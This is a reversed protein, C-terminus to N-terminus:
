KNYLLDEYISTVYYRSFRSVRIGLGVVCLVLCCFANLLGVIGLSSGDDGVFQVSYGCCNIFTFNESHKVLCWVMLRMPSHSHLEV